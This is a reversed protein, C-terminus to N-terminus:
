AIELEFTNKEQCSKRCCESESSRNYDKNTHTNKGMSTPYIVFKSSQKEPGIIGQMNCQRGIFACACACACPCACPNPLLLWLWGIYLPGNSSCSLRDFLFVDQTGHMAQLLDGDVRPNRRLRSEVMQVIDYNTARGLTAHVAIVDTRSVEPFVGVLVIRWITHTTYRPTDEVSCV